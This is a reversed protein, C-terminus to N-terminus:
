SFNAVAVYSIRVLPIRTGGLLRMKIERWYNHGPIVTSLFHKVWKQDQKGLSRWECFISGSSDNPINAGNEIGKEILGLHRGQYHLPHYQPAPWLGAWSVFFQKRLTFVTGKAMKNETSASARPASCPYFDKPPSRPPQTKQFPFLCVKSPMAPLAGWRQMGLPTWTYTKQIPIFMFFDGLLPGHPALWAFSM